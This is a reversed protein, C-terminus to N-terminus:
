PFLSSTNSFSCHTRPCSSSASSEDPCKSPNFISVETKPLCFLRDGPAIVRMSKFAIIKMSLATIMM